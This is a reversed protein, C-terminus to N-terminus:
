STQRILYWSNLVSSPFDINSSSFPFLSGLGSFHDSANDWIDSVAEQGPYRHLLRSPFSISLLFTIVFNFYSSTLAERTAWHYLIQRCHLLWLLGLNSGQTPFIGPPPCPLGSWYEQKSFGVSLLAQRAIGWLTAFLRVRGYRSLVHTCM